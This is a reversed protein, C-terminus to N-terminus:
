RTVGPLHVSMTTGRLHFSRIQIRGGHGEIIRGVIALGLGSGGPKTSSLFSKFAKKRQEE